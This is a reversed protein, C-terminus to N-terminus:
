CSSKSCFLGAGLRSPARDHISAIDLGPQAADAVRCSRELSVRRCLERGPRGGGFAAPFPPCYSSRVEEPHRYLDEAQLRREGTGRSRRGGQDQGALSGTVDDCAIGDDRPPAPEPHPHPVASSPRYPHPLRTKQIASKEALTLSNLKTACSLRLYAKSFHDSQAEDLPWWARSTCPLALSTPPLHSTVQQRPRGSASLSVSRPVKPASLTEPQWLWSAGLSAAFDVTFCLVLTSFLFLSDRSCSSSPFSCFHLERACASTVGSWVGSTM